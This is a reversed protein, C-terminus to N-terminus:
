DRLKAWYEDVQQASLGGWTSEGEAQSAEQGFNLQHIVELADLPSIFSDFNTDLSLSAPDDVDGSSKIATRNLWDIIMLADIPNVAGDRNVDNPNWPDIRQDALLRRVGKSLPGRNLFEYENSSAVDQSVM